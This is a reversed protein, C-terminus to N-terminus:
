KNLYEYCIEIVGECEEINDKLEKLRRMNKKSYNKIKLLKDDYQNKLLFLLRNIYILTKEIREDEDIVSLLYDYPKSITNLYEYEMLLEVNKLREKKNMIYLKIYVSNRDEKISLCKENLENIYEITWKKNEM